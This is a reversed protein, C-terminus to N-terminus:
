ECFHWWCFPTFRTNTFRTSHLM